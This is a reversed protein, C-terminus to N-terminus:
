GTPSGDVKHVKYISEGQPHDMWKTSKTFIRVRHTIRGSQPNQYDDAGM